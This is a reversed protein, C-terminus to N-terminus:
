HFKASRYQKCFTNHQRVTVDRGVGGVNTDCFLLVWSILKGLWLHLDCDYGNMVFAMPIHVAFISGKTYLLKLEAPELKQMTRLRVSVM